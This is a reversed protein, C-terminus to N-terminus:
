RRNVNNILAACEKDERRSLAELALDRSPFEAYDLRNTVSRYQHVRGKWRIGEVVFKRGDKFTVLSAGKILPSVVM